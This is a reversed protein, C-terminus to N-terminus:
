LLGTPNIVDPHMNFWLDMTINKLTLYLKDITVHM